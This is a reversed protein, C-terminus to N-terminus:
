YNNKQQLNLSLNGSPDTVSESASTSTGELYVVVADVILLAFGMFFNLCFLLVYATAPSTFLFSLFYVWPIIAVGYSFLLLLFTPFVDM